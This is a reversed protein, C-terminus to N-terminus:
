PGMWVGWQDKEGGVREIMLADTNGKVVWRGMWGDVWDLTYNNIMKWACSATRLGPMLAWKRTFWLKQYAFFFCLAQFLYM